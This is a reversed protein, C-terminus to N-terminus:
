GSLFDAWKQMVERREALLDDRQYAREVQNGVAHGLATEAVEFRVGERECWSRFTSRMGHVSWPKGAVLKRLRDPHVGLGDLNGMAQRSLPVRPTTKGKPQREPAITWVDGGIESRCGGGIAYSRVATLMVLRLADHDPGDGLSQYFAPAEDVALMDRHKTEVKERILLSKLSDAPNVAVVQEELAIGFAGRLAVLVRRRSGNSVGNAIEALDAPTVTDVPRSGIEPLVHNALVGEYIRLTKPAWAARNREIWKAAYDAVTCATMREMPEGAPPGNFSRAGPDLDGPVAPRHVPQIGAALMNDLLTNFRATDSAHQGFLLRNSRRLERNEAELETM